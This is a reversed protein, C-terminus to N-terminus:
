KEPVYVTNDYILRLREDPFHKDLFVEVTTDAPDGSRRGAQRLNAAISMSIDFAFFIALCICFTNLKKGQLKTYASELLPYLWHASFLVLLGWFIMYPITTRGGINLLRNSYDWSRTNFVIEQLVSLGYEFIGGALAGGVFCALKNARTRYFVLYIGVAGLGYVPSFPGYVLGRRSVWEIAGTAFFHKILTLIEEYYTGFICGIAFVLIIQNFILRFTAKPLPSPSKKQDEDARAVAEVDPKAKQRTSSAKVKRSVNRSGRTTTQTSKRSASTVKTKSM